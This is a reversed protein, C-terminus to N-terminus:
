DFNIKQNQDYRTKNFADAKLSVNLNNATDMLNLDNRDKLNSLRNYTSWDYQQDKHLFM